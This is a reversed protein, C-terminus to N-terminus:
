VPPHIDYISIDKAGCTCEFGDDGYREDIHSADHSTFRPHATDASRTCSAAANGAHGLGVTHGVEHCGVQLRGEPGIDSMDPIDFRIEFRQCKEGTAFEMCMTAAWINFDPNSDWEMNWHDVYNADFFVIDTDGNSTQQLKTTMSTLELQDMGHTAAMRQKPAINSFAYTHHDNDAYWSGGPEGPGFPNAAAREVGLLGATAFVFTVALWRVGHTM